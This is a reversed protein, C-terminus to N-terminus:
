MAGRVMETCQLNALPPITIQCWLGTSEATYAWHGRPFRRAGIAERTQKYPSCILLIGILPVATMRGSTLGKWVVM